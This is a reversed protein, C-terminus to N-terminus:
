LGWGTEFSQKKLFAIDNKMTSKKEFREVSFTTV